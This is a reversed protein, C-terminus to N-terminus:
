AFAPGTAGSHIQERPLMSHDEKWCTLDRGLLEGLRDIEATFEGKLQARLGPALPQRKQPSANMRRLRTEVRQMATFVFQPTFSRIALGAVWIRPDRLIARLVGSRVSKSGNVVKFEPQFDLEKAGFFELTRRYVSPTDSAFDDYLVVRVRDRGFVHFYRRVQETYNAAERYLLGQAFYTQRSIRKGARRDNEAALAEEFTPLHENGDYRFQHYLSYMMEVPERLMILIRADPNFQRIQTAAFRSLLYWVSAEGSMRQNKRGSFEKAYDFLNRRYFHASFRLDAGFVHMEKRAMFIEPHAGLFVSMATTGSKPAGVIFVSPRNAAGFSDAATQELLGANITM